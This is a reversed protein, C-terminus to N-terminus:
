SPQRLNRNATPDTTPITLNITLIMTSPEILGAISPASEIDETLSCDHQPPDTL